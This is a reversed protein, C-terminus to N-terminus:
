GYYEKLEMRVERRVRKNFKRKTKARVGARRGMWRKTKPSFCDLEDGDRTPERHGMM